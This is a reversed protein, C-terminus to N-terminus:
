MDLVLRDTRSRSCCIMMIGEAHEEETLVLDRHDPEGALVRTECTGCVGVRCSHAPSLGEELLVDLITKDSPVVIQTGSKALEVVFEGEGAQLPAPEFREIHVLEGPRSSCADLFADLMPSPGCCYVHADTPIAALMRELDPLGAEDDFHIAGGLARVEALFPADERSRACYALSWDRGSDQLRRAMPLLPTIGIGGGFLHVAGEPALAFTNRPQSVCVVQGPRLREHIAASGGRSDRERRVGLVYRSGCSGLTLSYQRQLGGGIDLDLHDGPNPAPLSGDVPELEIRLVDRCEWRLARVMVDFTQSTTM